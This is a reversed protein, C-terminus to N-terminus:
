DLVLAALGLEALAADRGNRYQALEQATLGSPQQPSWEVVAHTVAGAIFQQVTLTVM